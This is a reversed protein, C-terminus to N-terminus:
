PRPDGPERWVGGPAPQGQENLDFHGHLYDHKRDPVPINPDTAVFNKTIGTNPDFVSKVPNGQPDNSM